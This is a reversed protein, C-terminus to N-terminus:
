VPLPCEAVYAWDRTDVYVGAGAYGSHSWRKASPNWQLVVLGLRHGDSDIKELWHHDAMRVKYGPPQPEVGPFDRGRQPSKSAEDNM